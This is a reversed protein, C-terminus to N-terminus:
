ERGGVLEGILEVVGARDVQEGRWLEEGRRARWARSQLAAFCM